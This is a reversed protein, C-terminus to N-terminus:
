LFSSFCFCSPLPSYIWFFFLRTDSSWRWRKFIQNFSLSFLIQTHTKANFHPFLIIKPDVINTQISLPHPNNLLVFLFIHTPKFGPTGHHHPFFFSPPITRSLFLPQTSLFRHLIDLSFFILTHKPTDFKLSFLFFVIPPTL